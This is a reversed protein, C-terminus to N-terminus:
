NKRTLVEATWTALYPALATTGTNTGATITLLGHQATEMTEHVPQDDYTFSRLCTNTWSTIANKKKLESYSPGMYLQVIRENESDVLKCVDPPPTNNHDSGTYVCGGSVALMEQGNETFPTLNNDGISLGLRNDTLVKTPITFDKPRPMVLWRGAVGCVKDKAPTNKLIENGYAGPNISYYESTVLRNNKTRLGVVHKDEDLEIKTIEENWFFVVGQSELYSLVNEIFQHINFAFGEVLIGGAINGDKYAQAYVPFRKAVADGSLFQKLFGYQEYKEVNVRLLRESSCLVLVGEDTNTIRTDKFLFPKAKRLALWEAISEKSHKVYYNENLDGIHAENKSAERRKKLWQQDNESFESHPRALWGGDRVHTCLEDFTDPLISTDFLHPKAEFGTVFRASRGNGTAGYQEADRDLRPDPGM